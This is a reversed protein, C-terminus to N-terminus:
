YNERRDFEQQRTYKKTLCVIFTAMTAAGLLAEVSCLLRPWGPEPRFDGYGLTTFTVVSFYLNTGFSAVRQGADTCIAGFRWYILACLFVIVTGWILPRMPREGYGYFWRGFFSNMRVMVKSDRAFLRWRWRSEKHNKAAIARRELFHYEGEAYSDSRARAANKATRFLSIGEEPNVVEVDMAQIDSGRDFRCRFDFAAAITAGGFMADHKFHADNFKVDCLFEAGTFDANGEFSTNTFDAPGAFTVSRFYDGAPDEPFAKDSFDLLTELEGEGAEKVRKRADDWFRAAQTQRPTCTESM